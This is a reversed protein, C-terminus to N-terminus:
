NRQRIGRPKGSDTSQEQAGLALTRSHTENSHCRFVLQLGRLHRLSGTAAKRGFGSLEGAGGARDDGVQNIEEALNSLWVFRCAFNDNKIILYFLLIYFLM